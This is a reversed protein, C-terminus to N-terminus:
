DFVMCILCVSLQLGPFLRPVASMSTGLSSLHVDNYNNDDDDDDDKDENDDNDGDGEGDGDGHSPREFVAM